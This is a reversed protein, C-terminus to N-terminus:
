CFISKKDDLKKLYKETKLIKLMLDKNNIILSNEILFDFLVEGNDLVQDLDEYTISSDLDFSFNLLDEAKM